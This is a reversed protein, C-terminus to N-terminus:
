GNCPPNYQQIILSEILTRESVSNSKLVYLSNSSVYKKWCFLKHHNQLRQNIDETIGVYIIKNGLQMTNQVILYVCPFTNTFKRDFFYRGEFILNHTHGSFVIPVTLNNM